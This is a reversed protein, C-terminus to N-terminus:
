SKKIFIYFKFYFAQIQVRSYSYGSVGYKEKKLKM